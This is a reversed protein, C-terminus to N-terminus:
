KKLTTYRSLFDRENDTLKEGREMKAKLKFFESHFIAMMENCLSM